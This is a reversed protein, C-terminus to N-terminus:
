IKRVCWSRKGGRASREGKWYSVNEALNILRLAEQEIDYVTGRNLLEAKERSAAVFNTAGRLSRSTSTSSFFMSRHYNCPFTRHFRRETPVNVGSVITAAKDTDCTFNGFIDCNSVLKEQRAGTKPAKFPIVDASALHENGGLRKRGTVSNFGDGAVTREAPEGSYSSETLTTGAQLASPNRWQTENRTRTFWHRSECSNRREAMPDRERNTEEVPRPSSNGRMRDALKRLKSINFGEDPKRSNAFSVGTCSETNGRTGSAVEVSERKRTKQQQETCDSVDSVTASTLRSGGMRERIELFSKMQSSRLSGGENNESCTAQQQQAGSRRDNQTLLSGKMKERIELLNKMQSSGLFGDSRKCTSLQRQEGSGRTRERFKLLGKRQSNGRSVDSVKCISAKHRENIRTKIEERLRSFSNWRPNTESVAKERKKDWQNSETRSNTDQPPVNRAGIVNATNAQGKERSVSRNGNKEVDMFDDFIEFDLCAKDSAFTNSRVKCRNAAATLQAGPINEETEREKSQNEVRKRQTKSELVDVKTAPEAADASTKTYAAVRKVNKSQLNVLTNETCIDRGYDAPKPTNESVESRQSDSALPDRDVLEAFTCSELNGKYNDDQALLNNHRLFNYVLDKLLKIVGAWDKFEM